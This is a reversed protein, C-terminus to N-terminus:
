GLTGWTLALIHWIWSCAPVTQRRVGFKSWIFKNEWWETDEHSYSNRVVGRGVGVRGMAVEDKIAKNKVQKSKEGCPTHSTGNHSWRPCMWCVATAPPLPM